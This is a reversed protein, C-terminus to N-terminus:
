QKAKEKIKIVLIHNMIHQFELHTLEKGTIQRYVLAPMKTALAHLFDFLEEDKIEIYDESEKNILPVIQEIIRGLFYDSRDTKEEKM